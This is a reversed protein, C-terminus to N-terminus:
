NRNNQHKILSIKDQLDIYHYVNSRTINIYQLRTKFQQMM